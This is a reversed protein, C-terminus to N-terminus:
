FHTVNKPLSPRNGKPVLLIHQNRTFTGMSESKITSVWESIYNGMSESFDKGM